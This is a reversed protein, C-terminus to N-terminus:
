GANKFDQHNRLTKFIKKSEFIGEINNRIKTKRIKFFCFFFPLHCLYVRKMVTEKQKSKNLM